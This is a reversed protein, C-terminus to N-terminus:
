TGVTLTGSETMHIWYGRLPKIVSLDSAFASAAPAFVKWPDEDDSAEFRNITIEVDIASINFSKTEGEHNQAQVPSFGALPLLTVLVLFATLGPKGGIIHIIHLYAAM